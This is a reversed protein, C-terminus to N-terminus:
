PIHATAPQSGYSPPAPYNGYNAYNGAPPYQTGGPQGQGQSGFQGQSISAIVDGLKGQGPGKTFYWGGGALIAILFLSYSKPVPGEKPTHM